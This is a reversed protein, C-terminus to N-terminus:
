RTYKTLPQEAFLTKYGLKSFYKAIRSKGGGAYKSRIKLPNHKVIDKAIQKTDREDEASLTDNKFLPIPMLTSVKSKHEDRPEVIHKGKEHRWGGIHDNFQLVKKALKLHDKRITFADTKVSWVDIHNAILASYDEYM